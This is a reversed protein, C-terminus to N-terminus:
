SSTLRSLAAIVPKHAYPKPFFVARDPMDCDGVNRHGSTIVIEVTPWREKVVWALKLGDLVGPMDIDTFIAHISSQQEFLLLAEDANSAELVEFGADRLDDAVTMRILPEDEIVLITPQSM